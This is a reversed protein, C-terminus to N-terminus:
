PGALAGTVKGIGQPLLPVVHTVVGSRPQEVLQVLAPLGIPVGLFTARMGIALRLALRDVLWDPRKLFAPWRHDRHVGLFLCPDPIECSRPVFPRGVPLRALHAALITNVLMQALTKRITDRVDGGSVAPDTHPHSMIGGLTSGLRQGAPPLLPTRPHIGRGLGQEHRRLRSATM